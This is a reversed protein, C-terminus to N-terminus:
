RADYHFKNKLLTDMKEIETWYLSFHTQFRANYCKIKGVIKSSAENYHWKWPM